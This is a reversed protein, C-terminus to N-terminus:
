EALLHDSQGVIKTALPDDREARQEGVHGMTARYLNVAGGLVFM